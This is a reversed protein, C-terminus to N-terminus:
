ASRDIADDPVRDFAESFAAMAEELQALGAEEREGLQVDGMRM